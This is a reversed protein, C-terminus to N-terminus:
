LILRQLTFPYTWPLDKLPALAVSFRRLGFIPKVHVTATDITTIAVLIFRNSDIYTL